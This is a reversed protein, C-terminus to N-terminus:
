FIRSVILPQSQRDIRRKFISERIIYKHNEHKKNIMAPSPHSKVVSSGEKQSMWAQLLDAVRVRELLPFVKEVARRAVKVRDKAEVSVPLEMQRGPHPLYVFILNIMYFCFLRFM